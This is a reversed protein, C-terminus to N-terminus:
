KLLFGGDVVVNTGTVWSSADSLLYITAYAVDTPNGLRGLPYNKTDEKLQEETIIEDSSFLSTQIIGPNVSNVRIKKAALDLAMGKALGNIAGKSASYISAGIASCNVGSISSIFVISSKKQLKKLKVLKQSLLAPANFNVAFTQDILKQSAFSFPTYKSIGACHVVGDLENILNILSLVSEADSLDATYCKHKNGDLLNFTTLLNENNRGTITLEAGIKACQIAIEKGIGSSAGTILIRKGLLSFPNNQM